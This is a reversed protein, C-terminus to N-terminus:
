GAPLAPVGYKSFMVVFGGGPAMHFSLKEGALAPMVCLACLAAAFIDFTNGRIM